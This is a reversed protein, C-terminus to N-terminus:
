ATLNKGANAVAEAGKNLIELGAEKLKDLLGLNKSVLDALLSNASALLFSTDNNVTNGSADVKGTTLAGSITQATEQIKNRVAIEFIGSEARRISTEAIAAIPSSTTKGAFFRGYLGQITQLYSDPANKRLDQIFTNEANEIQALVNRVTDYNSTKNGLAGDASSKANSNQIGLAEETTKGNALDVINDIANEGKSLIQIKWALELITEHQNPASDITNKLEQIFSERLRLMNGQQGIDDIFKEVKDKVRGALNKTNEDVSALGKYPNEGKTLTEISSVLWAPYKSTSKGDAGKSNNQLVFNIQSLSSITKNGFLGDVGSNGERVSKKLIEKFNLNNARFNSFIAENVGDKTRNIEPIKTELEKILAEDTMGTIDKGLIAKILNYLQIYPQFTENKTVINNNQRGLLEQQSMSDIEKQEIISTRLDDSQLVQVITKSTGKDKNYKEKIGKITAITDKVNVNKPDSAANPDDVIPAGLATLATNMNIRRDKFAKEEIGKFEILSQKLQANFEASNLIKNLDQIRLTLGWLMRDPAFGAAVAGADNYFNSYSDGINQRAQSSYSVINNSAGNSSTNTSIKPTITDTPSM